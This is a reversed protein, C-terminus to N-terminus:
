FANKIHRIKYKDSSIIVEIIDFRIENELKLSSMFYAATSKINEEKKRDVAESPPFLSNERRTKVEVIAVVDDKLAAIDIEGSKSKFNSALIKYGRKRLFRGAYLEGLLGTRKSEPIM